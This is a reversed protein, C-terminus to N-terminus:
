SVVRIRMDKWAAAEDGSKLGHAYQDDYKESWGNWRTAIDAKVESLEM